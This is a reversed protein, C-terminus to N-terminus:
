HNERIEEIRVSDEVENYFESGREIGELDVKEFAENDDYANVEYFVEYTELKRMIYKKPVIGEIDEKYNTIRACTNQTLKGIGLILYEIEASLNEKLVEISAGNLDYDVELTLKIKGKNM